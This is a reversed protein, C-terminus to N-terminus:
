SFVTLDRSQAEHQILPQTQTIDTQTHAHQHSPTRIVYTIARNALEVNRTPLM